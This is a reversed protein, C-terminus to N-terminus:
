MEKFLDIILKVEGVGLGLEKAIAVNSKGQKHLALVRENKNSNDTIPQLSLAIDGSEQTQQPKAETKAKATKKPKSDAAKAPKANQALEPVPEAPTKKETQVAAETEAPKEAKEEAPAPKKEKPIVPSQAIAKKVVSEAAKDMEHLSDERRKLKEIGSLSIPEFTEEVIPEGTRADEMVPEVPVDPDIEPEAARAADLESKSEPVIFSAIFIVAGLILLLIELTTM